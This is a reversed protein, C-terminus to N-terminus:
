FIDGICRIVEDEWVVFYNGGDGSWLFFFRFEFVYYFLSFYVCLVGLVNLLIEVVDDSKGLGGVLEGGIVMKRERKIVFNVFKIGLCTVM